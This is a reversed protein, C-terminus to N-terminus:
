YIIKLIDDITYVAHVGPIKKAEDTNISKIVGHAVTSRFIKGHLMGPLTLHHTYVAKGTVKAKSEKRPISQGVQKTPTLNNPM